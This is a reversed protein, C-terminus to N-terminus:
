SARRGRAPKRTQNRSTISLVSTFRKGSRYVGLFPFMSVVLTEGL